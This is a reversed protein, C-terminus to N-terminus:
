PGSAPSDCALLEGAWRNRILRLKREITSPVCGLKTAIEANTYGEMKWVAISRLQVDGLRGLLRQCEEAVQAACEPTPEKGIVAELGQPEDWSGTLGLVAAEDHVEGGGRKQRRDHQVLHAAKRTTIVVLLRWLNDRDDLQPFRHQEAGRCFSDFASLAVDEEDAARRAHGQLKARALGVLRQFYREWLDQAAARDGAQLQDVWRTVSGESSM